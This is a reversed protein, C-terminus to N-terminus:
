QGRGEQQQQMERVRDAIQGASAGYSRHVVLDEYALDTAARGNELRYLEGRPDLPQAALLGESVLSAIQSPPMGHHATYAAAAADIKRLDRTIWLDWYRKELASRTEEHDTAELRARIFILATEPDGSQAYLRASLLPLYPPAGPLSAALRMQEAASGYDQKELFYNFGLLFHLKWYDVHETGKHLLEIAGDVNGTLAAIAGSMVVYVTRFGPDIDTVLNALRGLAPYGASEFREDGVYYVTRLWFLDAILRDFGLSLVRIARGDPLAGIQGTPLIVDIRRELSQNAAHVATGIAVLLALLWLEFRFRVLLTM